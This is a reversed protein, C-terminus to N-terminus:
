NAFKSPAAEAGAETWALRPIARGLDVAHMGLNPILKLLWRKASEPELPLLGGPRVHEAPSEIETRCPLRGSRGEGAWMMRSTRKTGVGANYVFSADPNQAQLARAAALPHNVHIECDQEESRVNRVSTGLCYLCTDVDKLEHAISDLNAFSAWHM